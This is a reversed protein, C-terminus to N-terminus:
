EDPAMSRLLAPNDALAQVENAFDLEAPHIVGDAAIVRELAALFRDLAPRPMLITTAMHQRLARAQPRMRAITRGLADAEEITMAAGILGAKHLHQVEAEAWSMIRDIEDPHYHGDAKGCAVLVTLPALIAMRLDRGNPTLAPQYHPWAPAAAKRSAVPSRRDTPRLDLHLVDTLFSQGAFVEGDATIIEQIRDVRFNRVDRRLHCVAFLAPMGFKRTISLMTIPRHSVRGQADIYSIKCFINELHEDEDPITVVITDADDQVDPAPPARNWWEESMVRPIDDHIKPARGFLWNLFNM